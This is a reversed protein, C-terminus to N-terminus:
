FKHPEIKILKDFLPTKYIIDNDWNKRKEEIEILGLFLLCRKFLRIFYCSGAEEEASTYRPSIEKLLDPYAAFYKNAYFQYPRKKDGYKSLLVLSFSIGLGNIKQHSYADFYGLNLKFRFAYLLERLLTENNKIMQEGIKTLTMVNKREKVMKMLLLMIHALRILVSDGEKRLKFFGEEILSDSIGIPYLENVMKLPFRGTATLKIQGNNSLFDTIYKILRFLPISDYDTENLPLFKVPSNDSGLQEYMLYSMERPSYGEFLPNSHNNQKDIFKSLHKNLEDLTFRKGENKLIFENIHKQLDENMKITNQKSEAFKYFSKRFFM